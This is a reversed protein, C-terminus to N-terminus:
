RDIPAPPRRYALRLAGGLTVLAIVSWVVAWVIAPVGTARPPSARLFLAVLAISYVAGM